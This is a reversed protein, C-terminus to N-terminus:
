SGGMVSDLAASIRKPLEADWKEQVTETFERATTGPHHIKHAVVTPGGPTGSSSGIVRVSTKPRSGPGFMLVKGRKPTIIHPRTGEDVYKWIEDSTDVQFGDAIPTIVFDVKHKWTGTTHRLDSRADASAEILAGTVARAVRAINFLDGQPHIPILKM